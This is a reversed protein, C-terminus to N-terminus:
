QGAVKDLTSLIRVRQQRQETLTTRDALDALLRSGAHSVVGAGDPTVTIKPCTTTSVRRSETGLAERHVAAATSLPQSHPAGCTM